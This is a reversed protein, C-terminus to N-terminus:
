VDESWRVSISDRSPEKARGIPHSREGNEHVEEADEGDADLGVGWSGSISREGALTASLPKWTAASLRELTPDEDARWVMVRLHQSACPRRGDGEVVALCSGQRGNTPVTPTRTITKPEM